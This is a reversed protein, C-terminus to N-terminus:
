MIPNSLCMFILAHSLGRATQFIWVYRKREALCGVYGDQSPSMLLMQTIVRLSPVDFGAVRSPANRDARCLRHLPSCTNGASFGVGSLIIADGGAQWIVGSAFMICKLNVSGSGAQFAFLAPVAPFCVQAPGLPPTEYGDVQCAALHYIGTGDQRLLFEHLTWLESCTRVAQCIPNGVMCLTSLWM